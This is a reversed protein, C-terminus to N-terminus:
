PLAQDRTLRRNTLFGGFGHEQKGRIVVASEAPFAKGPKEMQKTPLACLSKDRLAQSSKLERRTPNSQEARTQRTTEKKKVVENVV